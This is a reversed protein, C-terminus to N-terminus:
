GSARSSADVPILVSGKRDSPKMSARRNVEFGGIGGEKMLKMERELQPKTVSPGFWWWRMMMRADDPPNQFGRALDALTGPGPPASTQAFARTDAAQFALATSLAVMGLPRNWFVIRRLM